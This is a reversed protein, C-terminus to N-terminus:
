FKKSLSVYLFRGTSDYLFGPYGTSNNGEGYSKPPNKDFVNIAGLTVKTDQLYSGLEGHLTYSLQVDFTWTSKVNWPESDLDLDKFGDTYIGTVSANWNKYTWEAVGRARWKLYGDNANGGAVIQGTSPDITATTDYGAYEILPDGPLSAHKFSQLYSATAAFNFRGINDTPLVYSTSIDVGKAITKGSNVFPAIVQAINGGSDLIVQEGPQVSGSVTGFWRNLTNQLDASVTGDREVRWWDVAVTFGKLGMSQPTWVMGVSTSNTTESKLKRNGGVITPTEPLVAGTRPDVLGQLGAVNGAYLEYLSPQRIGKGYSARFVLTDDIPQWHLGFKPVFKTQGSTLFDEYRGAADFTLSHAGPINQGSSILPVRVEAYYAAVKRRANTTSAASSGITDGLQNLSDPSQQLQEDRYDAGMAFGVDGAPINFLAPNNVTLYGNGLRSVLYDKVRSTAYAVVAFNSPIPNVYYGFPNYAATTGIYSASSPNFIPDAANLVKNFRSTSVLTNDTVDSIESFRFGADFSWNEYFNDDKLGLTVMYATNNDRFIRNGFDALRFRSGDAIDQNFPNYPNYAGAPAIRQVNGSADTTTGVSPSWGAPLPTGAAVQMVAGTSSNVIQLIPNATRAPIILTTQGPTFFSGTASPALQNETYNYQYSADYYFKLKDSGLIKRDGALVAGYRTSNPYSSSWQNYNTVSRRGTSYVYQSAPTNGYNTSTTANGNPDSPLGGGIGPTAFFTNRTAAIGTPNTASGTAEKYALTGINLNIPSSNSSLFPPVASYTRDRNYIAARSYFNFGVMISGKDNGAGTVLNATLESSDKDTTNGYTVNLQTGEYNKRLIINVVGAVADAGYVASAGDKLVEVREVAQLPITNLDVFAVTGGQGQPYPAVRHGNILVLTAEPGLGHISTSSAAPTFGTANNSFPVAGGNSVVIKQLLEAATQYGTQDITKRDLSVVPFIGAELATETTPINSGTVVFKEFQVAQEEKKQDTATAQAYGAVASFSGTAFLSLAAIFKRSRFKNM